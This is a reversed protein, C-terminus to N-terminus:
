TLELKELYQKKTSSLWRFLTWQYMKLYSSITQLNLSFLWAGIKEPDGQMLERMCSYINKYEKLFGQLFLDTMIKLIAKRRGITNVIESNQAKPKLNQLKVSTEKYAKLLGRVLHLVFDDYRQHLLATLDLIPGVDKVTLRTELINQAVESIYRSLNIGKSDNMIGSPDKSLQKIRRLFKSIYDIKATLGVPLVLTNYSVRGRENKDAQETEERKKLLKEDEQLLEAFIKKM